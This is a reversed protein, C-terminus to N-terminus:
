PGPGYRFLDDLVAVMFWLTGIFLSGGIAYSIIKVIRM